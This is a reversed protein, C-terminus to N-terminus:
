RRRYPSLPVLKGSPGQRVKGAEELQQLLRQTDASETFDFKDCLWRVFSPDLDKIPKGKHKGAAANAAANALLVHCTHSSLM